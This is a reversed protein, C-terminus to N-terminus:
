GAAGGGAASEIVAVLDAIPHPKLLYAFAGSELGDQEDAESLHGTLLVVKTSPSIRKLEALTQFGDMGPMKVDLLAVDFARARAREVAQAGDPAVEVEFGRRRLLKALSDIFETEDDVVLVSIPSM